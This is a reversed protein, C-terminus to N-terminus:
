RLTGGSMASLVDLARRRAEENGFFATIILAILLGSIILASIQLSTTQDM